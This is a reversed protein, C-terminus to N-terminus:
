PNRKWYSSDSIDRTYNKNIYQQTPADLLSFYYDNLGVLYPLRFKEIQKYIPGYREIMYPALTSGWLIPYVPPRFVINPFVPQNEPVKQMELTVINILGTPDGKIRNANGQISSRATIILLVSAIILIGRRWVKKYPLVFLIDDILVAACLCYAWTIPIYYQIFVSNIFLFSLWQVFLGICLILKLIRVSDGTKTEIAKSLFRYAGAFALLPLTWAYVWAPPKGEHGYIVGNMFYFYGLWTPSTISNNLQVPDLIIQQFMASFNGNILFYGFFLAFFVIIGGLFFILNKIQKTILSYLFYIITLAGLFPLIKVSTMLTLGTLIGSTFFLKGSKREIAKHMFILLIILLVVMLNEPRIQMSTFVTFPDLLFLIAFIISIRYNFIRKALLMILAIRLIFLGIMVIRAYSITLLSFGVFKFLPLLLWFLFPSYVVYFSQYIKYGHSILYVINANHIEDSDFQYFFGSKIVSLFLILFLVLGVAFALSKIFTQLKNKSM